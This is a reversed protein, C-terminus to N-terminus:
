RLDFVNEVPLRHSRVSPPEARGVRFLLVETHASPTPILQRFRFRLARLAHVETELNKLTPIVGTRLTAQPWSSFPVLSKAWRQPQSSDTASQVFTTSRLSTSMM